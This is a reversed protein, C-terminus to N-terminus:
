ITVTKPYFLESNVKPNFHNGYGLNLNSKSSTTANLAIGTSNVYAFLYYIVYSM